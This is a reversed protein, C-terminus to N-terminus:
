HFRFFDSLCRFTVEQEKDPQNGRLLHKTSTMLVYNTPPVPFVGLSVLKKEERPVM